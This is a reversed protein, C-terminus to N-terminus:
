RRETNPSSPCKAPEVNPEYQICPHQTMEGATARQAPDIVLMKELYQGLLKADQPPMMYKERLVDELQWIRLKLINKLEGRRNFIEHSYKGSLALKKPFRGM